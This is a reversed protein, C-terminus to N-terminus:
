TSRSWPRGCGPRGALHDRLAREPVACRVGRRTVVQDEPLVARLVRAEPTSRLRRRGEVLPVPSGTGDFYAAGHLRLAAWGTMAGAGGTRAYAEVARQEPRAGDVTAPM